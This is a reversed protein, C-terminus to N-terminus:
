LLPDRPAAWVVTIDSYRLTLLDLSCGNDDSVEVVGEEAYAHVVTGSTGAPWGGAECRLEVV